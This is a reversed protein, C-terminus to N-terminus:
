DDRQNFAVLRPSRSGPSISPCNARGRLRMPRPVWLALALAEVGVRRSCVGPAFGHSVGHSVMGDSANLDCLEVLWVRVSGAWASGRSRRSVATLGPGQM